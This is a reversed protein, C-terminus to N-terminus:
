EDAIVREIWPKHISVRTHVSVEGAQSRPPAAKQGAAPKPREAYTLSHIGALKGRCFLPGGSDGPAICIELPSQGPSATCHINANHQHFEAIHNTGARLRGDYKTHGASLQGHCGYGAISCIDGAKEEGTSLAPYFDLGMPRSTRLLALDNVGVVGIKYDPHRVIKEVEFTQGGLTAEARESDSVVHAATLLWRDSIATATAEWPEDGRVSKIKATYPAFGKAYDIYAADDRRDDTTGAILLGVAAVVAAVTAAFFVDNNKM